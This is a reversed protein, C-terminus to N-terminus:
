GKITLKEKEEDDRAKLAEEAMKRVGDQTKNGGIFGSAHVFICGAINTIKSLEEDRLGRWSKPLSLRNDFSNRSLPVCQIRWSGNLDPYLVYKVLRSASNSKDKLGDEDMEEEQELMRLHDKWPCSGDGFMMIEGSPHIQFREELAKKVIMRAPWWVGNLYTIRDDFESGVMAMAKEFQKYIVEEKQGDPDCWNTNLYSVRSSLDTSITYRAPGESVNIGNDIADIAEVFSEYLLDYFIELKDGDNDDGGSGFTDNGTGCVSNEEEHINILKHKNIISNIVQLGFKAYILGASSLKTKWKKSPNITSLSENFSRQHHDFRLKASDFVGGVDVVIDCEDLKVSDRTRIICADKYQDLQKLMYCAFVDDCHFTGNHTGIMKSKSVDSVNGLKATTQCNPFQVNTNSNTTPDVKLRKTSNESVSDVPNCGPQQQQQNM